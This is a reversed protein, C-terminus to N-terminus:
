LNNQILVIAKLTAKEDEPSLNLMKKEWLKAFFFSRAKLIIKMLACYNNDKVYLDGTSYYNSGYCTPCVSRIVCKKCKADLDEVKVESRLEINGLEIAENGSTVPSFFQCPYKKGETSYAIMQQGSACWTSIYAGEAQYAVKAIPDSLMKSPKLQPNELHYQILKMLQISLIEANQSDSWDIGFALNWFVKFGNEYCYKIGEFLNPLTEKSVTMKVTCDAYHERFFDLDILDFSNSRNINHMEPTGDLSLYCDIIDKNAILWTKMEETLVTGNTTIDFSYYKPYKRNRIHEVVAKITSFELLPEGGFFQFIVLEYQNDATLENEAIQIALDIPMKKKSKYREYCYSCHLNCADTITLTCFRQKEIPIDSRKLM